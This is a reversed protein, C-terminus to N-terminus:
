WQKTPQMVRAYYSGGTAGPGPLAVAWRPHWTDLPHTQAPTVDVLKIAGEGAHAEALLIYAMDIVPDYCTWM